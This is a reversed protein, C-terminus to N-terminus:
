FGRVLGSEFIQDIDGRDKALIEGDIITVMREPVFIRRATELVTQVTMQDIVELWAEPSVPTVYGLLMSQAVESVLAQPSEQYSLIDRRLRAKVRAFEQEDVAELKIERLERFLDRLAPRLNQESVKFEIQFLSVDTYSELAVELDYLLGKRERLIRTLRSSLGDGLLRELFVLEPVFSTCEGEATFTLLVDLQALQHTHRFILEPGIKGSPLCNGPKLPVLPAVDSSVSTETLRMEPKWLDVWQKQTEAFFVQPDVAGSACIVMNDPQYFDEFFQILDEKQLKDITEVNGVIAKGMPSDKGFLTEFAVNQLNVWEGKETLEESMEELVINKEIEFDVFLPERFVSGLVGLGQVLDQALCRYTFFTWEKGTGADVGDGQLELVHNLLFSSPYARCGRWLMHEMLHTIGSQFESEYRAGARVGILIHVFKTTALPIAACSLGNNFRKKVIEM